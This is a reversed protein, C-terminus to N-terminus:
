KRKLVITLVKHDQTSLALAKAGSLPDTYGWHLYGPATVSIEIPVPPLAIVFPGDASLSTSYMAEPQDRHLTIRANPVRSSTAADIVSIELVGDPPGLRIDARLHAGAALTLEPMKEKGSVFLLAQTNPYGASEKVACFRTRGYPRSLMRFKGDKDTIASPLPGSIAVDMPFVVIRASPVPQGNIDLVQGQVLALESSVQATAGPPSIGFVCLLSIILLSEIM